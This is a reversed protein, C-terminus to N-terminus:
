NLIVCYKHLVLVLTVFNLIPILTDSSTPHPDGRGGKREAVLEGGGGGVRSGEMKCSVTRYPNSHLDVTADASPAPGAVVCLEGGHGSCGAGIGSRCETM